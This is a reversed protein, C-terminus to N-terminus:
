AAAQHADRSSQHIDSGIGIPDRRSDPYDLNASHADQVQFDIPLGTVKQGWLSVALNLYYIDVGAAVLADYQEADLMVRVDVDRWDKRLLSSGVQYPMEGRFMLKVEHGWARLIPLESVSLYNHRDGSM